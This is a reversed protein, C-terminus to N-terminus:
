IELETKHGQTNRPKVGKWIRVDKADKGDVLGLARLGEGWRKSNSAIKNPERYRRCYEDYSERLEKARVFRDADVEWDSEFWEALPNSNGRYEATAARVNSPPQLGEDQYMVAGRVLWALIGDYEERLKHALDPDRQAEPITVTFPLVKYRRWVAEDLGDVKPQDNAAMWLTTVNRFGSYDQRMKRAKLFPEGTIRKMVDTDMAAGEVEATTVFRYGELDAIDTPIGRDRRLELLRPAAETAYNGLAERIANLFVTKGNAGSGYAFPLVNEGVDGAISYGALKQVYKRTEEDPLIEAIFADWRESVSNPNYGAATIQSHMEAPDHPRLKGSRLDVIGTHTNLSWLDTDFDSRAVVFAESASALELMAKIRSASQSNIGHRATKKSDEAQRAEAYISKVTDIGARMAAGSADIAWSRGDWSHWRGGREDRCFRLLDGYADALREANGVDSLERFKAPVAPGITPADAETIDFEAMANALQKEYAARNREERDLDIM